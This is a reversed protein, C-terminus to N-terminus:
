IVFRETVQMEGLAVQVSFREGSTGRFKLQMRETQRSQAQMVPTEAADLVRVELDPPLQAEAGLPFVQVVIAYDAGPRPTLGVRLGIQEGTPTRLELGKGREVSPPMETEAQRFSFAPQPSRGLSDQILEELTQWTADIVGQLWQGLNIVEPSPTTQRHAELVEFLDDLSRLESLPLEATTVTTVFGLLTAETLEANLLVAIYAIRDGQVESPIFCGSAGPLVPRCEVRGYAPLWLDATDALTHLAPNWSDSAALDTAIGFWRLYHQVAQVALANLYVQKARHRDRQNVRFQEAPQHMTLTLPVTPHGSNETSPQMVRVGAPM